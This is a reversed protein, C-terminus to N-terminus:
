ITMFTNHAFLNNSRKDLFVESWVKQLTIKKSVFDMVSEPFFINGRFYLILGSEVSFILDNINWYKKYWAM